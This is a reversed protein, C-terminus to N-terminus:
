IAISNNTIFENNPNYHIAYDIPTFGESQSITSNIKLNQMLLTVNKLHRRAIALHLPTVENSAQAANPDIEDCSLLWEVIEDQSASCAILLPTINDRYGHNISIIQADYLAKMCDLNGLHAALHFLTINQDFTHINLSKLFRVVPYLKESLFSLEGVGHVKIYPHTNVLQMFALSTECVDVNEPSIDINRILTISQIEQRTVPDEPGQYIIHKAIHYFDYTIGTNTLVPIVPKTLSIPCTFM